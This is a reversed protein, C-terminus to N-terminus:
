CITCYDFPEGGTQANGGEAPGAKAKAAKAGLELRELLFSDLVLGTPLGLCREFSFGLTWIAWERTSLSGMSPEIEHNDPGGCLPIPCAVRDAGTTLIAWKLIPNNITLFGTIGNVVMAPLWPVGGQFALQM